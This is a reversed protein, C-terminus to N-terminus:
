HNDPELFADPIINGINLVLFPDLCKKVEAMERIAEEGYMDALYERKLKGIGHEASLTGGLAIAKAVFTRYLTKAEVFEERNRPLINLHVHSNGIHGFIIYVFGHRECSNATFILSNVFHV